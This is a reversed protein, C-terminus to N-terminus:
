ISSRATPSRKSWTHIVGDRVTVVDFERGEIRKINTGAFGEAELVARVKKEFLFGSRIQYRKLPNLVATRYDNLFRTLLNLNTVLDDGIRVFPQYSNIATAYDEGEFILLGRRRAPALGGPSQLAALFAEAPITIVYDERGTLLPTILRTVEGFSTDSLGFEAFQAEMLSLQMRVEAKSLLRRPESLASDPAELDKGFAAMDTVSLRESDFGGLDLLVAEHSAQVGVGDSTVAYDSFVRAMMAMQALNTMPGGAMEVLVIIPFLDHATRAVTTGRAARPLIYFVALLRRRRSQFYAAADEVTNLVLPYGHAACAMSLAAAIQLAEVVREEMGDAYLEAIRAKIWGSGSTAAGALPFARFHGHLERDEWVEGVLNILEEAGQLIRHWAQPTHLADFGALGNRIGQDTRALETELAEVLAQGGLTGTFM